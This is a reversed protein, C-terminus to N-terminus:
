FSLPKQYCNHVSLITVHHQEIKYIVVYPFRNLVVDRIINQSDIYSFYYPNEGIASYREELEDLFEDGLGPRINEYYRVADLTDERAALTINLAFNM